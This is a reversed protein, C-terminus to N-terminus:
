KSDIIVGPNMLGKPDLAHKITKMLNIEVPSRRLALEDRKMRGIGHEAAISGGLDSVIDHVARHLDESRSYFEAENMGIPPSLDYHLNGDAAHGFVIPRIGPMIKEIEQNARVVFEPLASLPVCIDHKVSPGEIKQAEAITERLVWIEKRQAESSAPAADLMLNDDLVIALEQEIREKLHSSNGWAEIVAYFPYKTKFPSRAGPIHRTVLDIAFQPLVEYSVMVDGLSQQLKGYVIMVNEFNEFTLLLTERETPKPFLKLVAKTIIGLTGEAGIFLQKLDYGMNDKLLARAGDWISGDPLVVELGLVHDRMMGYRMVRVGGANTSINGGIVASGESAISLPFIRDVGDAAEQVTQLPVGAEVVMNNEQENVELIKNMKKLSIVVANEVDLPIGGIVLGTNGGQPIIPMGHEACIRVVAAVQGTTTPFIVMRAQGVHRGRWEAMYPTMDSRDTLCGKNGVIEKIQGLATELNMKTM